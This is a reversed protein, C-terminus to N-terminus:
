FVGECSAFPRFSLSWRDCSVILASPVDLCTGDVFILRLPLSRQMVEDVRVEREYPYLLHPWIEETFIPRPDREELLLHFLDSGELLLHILDRGESDTRASFARNIRYPGFSAVRVLVFPSSPPSLSFARFGDKLLPVDWLMMKFSM